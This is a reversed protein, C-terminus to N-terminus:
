RRTGIPGLRELLSPVGNDGEPEVAEVAEKSREAARTRANFRALITTCKEVLNEMELRDSKRAKELVVLRDRLTKVRKALKKASEPAIIPEKKRFFDGLRSM